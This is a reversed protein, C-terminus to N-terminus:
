VKYLTEIYTKKLSRGNDPSRGRSRECLDSMLEFGQRISARVIANNFDRYDDESLGISHLSARFLAWSDDRVEEDAM